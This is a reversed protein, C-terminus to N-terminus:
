VERKQKIRAQKGTRERLYYLKSRRVSGRGLVSIESIKESNVPFCREVGVGFSTKRITFTERAGEGQRKIVTGKFKQIRERGGEVVRAHVELTDGSDFRPLNEKIQEAEIQRIREM